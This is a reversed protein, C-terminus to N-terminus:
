PTDEPHADTYATTIAVPFRGRAPLTHGQETAWARIRQARTALKDYPLLDTKSPEVITPIRQEARELALLERTVEALQRTLQRRREARADTPRTATLSM